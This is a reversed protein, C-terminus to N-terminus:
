SGGGFGGRGLNKDLKLTSGSISFFAFRDADTITDNEKEPLVPVDIRHWFWARPTLIKSETRDEETGACVVGGRHGTSRCCADAVFIALSSALLRRLLRNRHKLVHKSFAQNHM